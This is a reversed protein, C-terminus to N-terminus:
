RRLLSDYLQLAIPGDRRMYVSSRVVPDCIALRSMRAAGTLLGFWTRKWIDCRATLRTSVACVATARGRQHHQFACANRVPLFQARCSAIADRSRTDNQAEACEWGALHPEEREMTVPCGRVTERRSAEAGYSGARAHTRAEAVTPM